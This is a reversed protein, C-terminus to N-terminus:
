SGISHEIVVYRIFNMRGRLLPGAGELSAATPATKCAPREYAHSTGGILVVISAVVSRQM